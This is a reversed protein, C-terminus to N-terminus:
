HTMHKLWLSLYAGVSSITLGAVVLIMADQLTSNSINFALTGLMLAAFAIQMFTNAKSIKLPQITIPNNLIWALMIAGFIMIDRAVVIIALWSPIINVIALTIYISVLLAKDALPDLYAGLETRQNFHRAIFGDVADTVGAIVFIAFAALWAHSTIMVIIVPVLCLRSLTLLNPINVSNLPVRTSQLFIYNEM